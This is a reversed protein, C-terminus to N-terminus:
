VSFAQYRSFSPPRPSAFLTTFTSSYLRGFNSAFSSFAESSAVSPAGTVTVPVASM